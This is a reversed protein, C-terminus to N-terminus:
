SLPKNALNNVIKKFNKLKKIKKKYKSTGCKKKRKM